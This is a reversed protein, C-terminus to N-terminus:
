ENIVGKVDEEFPNAGKNIHGCNDCKYVPYPVLTDESAGTMLKPVRKFFFTERFYVGDCNECFVTPCEKLSIKPQLDM